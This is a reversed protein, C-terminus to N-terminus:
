EQEDPQNKALKIVQRWTDVFEELFGQVEELISVDKKINAEILRRRLYDYLPMLQHSIDYDMNLTVRLENIIDQVRLISKHSEQINGSKIQAISQKTFRVAGQYLMLTLEGPSKTNVEVQRYQEYPNKTAVRKM